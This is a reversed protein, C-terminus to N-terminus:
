SFNDMVIKNCVQLFKAVVFNWAGFAEKEMFCPVDGEGEHNVVKTDFVCVFCIDIM